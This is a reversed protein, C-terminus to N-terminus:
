QQPTTSGGAANKKQMQLLQQYIEEPTKAKPSTTTTSTTTGDSATTVTTISTGAPNATTGAPPPNPSDVIGNAAPATSPTPIQDVSASPVPPFESPLPSSNASSGSVNNLPQPISVAPTVPSANPDPVPTTNTAAPQPQVPASQRLAEAAAAAEASAEEDYESSTPSPPTVGGTRPTLILSSPSHDARERVFINVGTGDLLTALVMGPTAPGYSGFVRQDTVGGTITMGTERAIERLIVNLSSDDAKVQLLGDQFTVYAHHGHTVVPTAVLPGVSAQGTPPTAPLSQALATGAALAIGITIAKLTHM